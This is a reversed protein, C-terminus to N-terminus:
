CSGTDTTALGEAIALKILDATSHVDLQEMLRAKHFEVTKV